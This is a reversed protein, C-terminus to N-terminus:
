WWMECRGFFCPSSFSLFTTSKSRDRKAKGKPKSDWKAMPNVSLHKPKLSVSLSRKHGGRKSKATTMALAVSKKGTIKSISILRSNYRPISGIRGLKRERNLVVPPSDDELSPQSDGEFCELFSVYRVLPDSFQYSIDPINMDLNTLNQSQGLTAMLQQLPRRTIANSLSQEPSALEQPNYDLNAPTM